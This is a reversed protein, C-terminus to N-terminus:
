SKEIQQYQYWYLFIWLLPLAVSLYFAKISRAIELLPLYDITQQLFALLLAIIGLLLYSLFSYVGWVNQQTWLTVSLSGSTSFVLFYILTSLWRPDSNLLHGEQYVWSREILIPFQPNMLNLVWKEQFYGLMLLLLLILIGAIKKQAM